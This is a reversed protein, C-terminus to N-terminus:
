AANPAAGNIGPPNGPGDGAVGVSLKQRVQRYSAASDRNLSLNNHASTARNQDPENPKQTRTQTDWVLTKWGHRLSDNIVEISRILGNRECDSLQALRTGSTIPKGSERLHIEWDNWKRVFEPSSRLDEPFWRTPAKEPIRIDTRTLETNPPVAQEGKLGNQEGKIDRPEGKRTEPNAREDNGNSSYATRGKDDLPLVLPEGKIYKTLRYRASNGRGNGAQILEIEGERILADIIKQVGRESCATERALKSQSPWAIGDKDAHFALCFMVLRRQGSQNCSELVACELEYSM